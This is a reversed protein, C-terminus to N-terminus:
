KEGPREEAIGSGLQPLHWLDIKIVQPEPVVEDAVEVREV